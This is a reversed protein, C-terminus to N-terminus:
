VAGKKVHSAIAGAGGLGRDSDFRRASSTPGSGGDSARMASAPPSVSAEKTGLSHSLDHAAAASGCHACVDAPITQPTAVDPTAPVPVPVAPRAPVAIPTKAQTSM